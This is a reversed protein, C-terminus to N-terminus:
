TQLREHKDDIGPKSKTCCDLSTGKKRMRMMMFFCGAVMLVMMIMLIWSFAYGTGCCLVM